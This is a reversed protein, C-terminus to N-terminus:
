AMALSKPSAQLVVGAPLDKSIVAEVITRVSLRDNRPSNVDLPKAKPNVLIRTQTKLVAIKVGSIERAAVVTDRQTGNLTENQTETVIRNDIATEVM